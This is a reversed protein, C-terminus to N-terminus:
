RGFDRVVMKPLGARTFEDNLRTLDESILDHLVRMHGDLEAALEEFVDRYAATPAADGRELRSRLGTLRDNLRIPFAIKDKPSQNRVQYLQAEVRGIDDVFREASAKLQQDESRAVSAQIQGKLDRILLISGNAQSEADRIRSALRFQGVLDADTVGTLRPDRHVGFSAVHVDDGVTLRAQYRGPPSWPGRAPNGGELVIGDFTVAGRHRLDWTERHTGEGRRGEFLTRVLEGEADFVDLRVQQDSDTVYYDIVAPVSRRIADAPNFLHTDATELGTDIQRLTEIDDLVWFSRGHTSIVLDRQQVTLGTIPTDPMDYSLDAWHAGDDFSVYVGHETGAYLLGKRNPDERLVRVFDGPAIGDVIKTWSTGYDNTRWAYPSRDDMEYRIGAVYATSGDHPSVDISMVRTHAPMDPPTVDSWSEGSDRTIHVLGDDSGTWITAQDHPSPALAYLTAYIEPGDQDKVVPGGSDGMTEPEARTLDPSIRLWSEGEDTSKWLHQSGVYLAAPEALSVAIPYTWNWREPMDRAPEGMVIRPHPQIDRVLGTNRDYRTLANTAGAYFVSPDTPRPAVYGSEGGGVSYMWETSVGRPNQLHGEESSVCVTSNDQQAGCAHYPFDTTTALRYIQATPYKMGTWTRGGNVSVVGGGDNGNIMRLPNGPDIWIDHHDAHTERVSELTRGADTSKMLRFNLIYITNRDVPDAQIRQFYFARQWIDRHANVLTWSSGGDDSMYLGGAEAEVNAWIRQSDAGSVTIAIKGLVGAPSGVSRAPFGPNDTLESWTDGGDTTKFIGSGEGGSWLQWPKRHVEWLTAYLVDPDHPDMVLDVAGTRDNRFLVKDWTRGGDTTRFVGRDASPGFPHGLAAVFAREPDTPHVRIRGIAQTNELGVHRWNRGGDDSRYVGDGQLVNARLQVEGMGIYVVDPNSEAVTVAGVSGSRIQGDTVPSWSTGGDTTKFLGGGTAGFYYEFPRDSHGAVAISRGGRDPGISRWELPPMLAAQGPASQAAAPAALLALLAVPAAILAALVRFLVSIILSQRSM